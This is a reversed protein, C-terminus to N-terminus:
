FDDAKGVFWDIFRQKRKVRWTKLQKLKTTAQKPTLKLHDHERFESHYHCSGCVAYLGADSKGQLVLKSYFRHHVQTAKRSCAFCNPSKRLVFAKLEAWTDSKLYASYSQFGIEKLILNRKHYANQRNQRRKHHTAM